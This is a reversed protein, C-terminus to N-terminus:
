AYRSVGLDVATNPTQKDGVGIVLEMLYMNFGGQKKWNNGKTRKYLVGDEDEIYADKPLTWRTWFAPTEVDAATDGEFDIDGAKVYQLIGTIYKAHARDGYGGVVKPQMTYALFKGFLEPFFALMDGYVSASV